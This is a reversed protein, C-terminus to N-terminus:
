ALDTTRFMRQADSTRAGIVIATSLSVPAPSTVSKTSAAADRM